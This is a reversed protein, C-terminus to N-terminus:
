LLKGTEHPGVKITSRLAHVIPTRTVFNDGTSISELSNGVTEEILKPTDPKINLDKIWKCKLKICPLLYPDTQKRRRASM